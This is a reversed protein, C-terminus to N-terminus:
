RAAQRPPIVKWKGRKVKWKSTGSAAADAVTTVGGGAIRRPKAMKIARLSPHAQRTRRLPKLTARLPIPLPTLSQLQNQVQPVLPVPPVPPQHLLLRMKQRRRKVKWQTLQPTLSRLQNQVQPVPQVQPVQPRHLLRM